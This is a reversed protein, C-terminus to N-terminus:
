LPDAIYKNLEDALSEKKNNSPHGNEVVLAEEQGLDHNLTSPGIEQQVTNNQQSSQDENNM